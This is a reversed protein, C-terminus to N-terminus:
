KDMSDKVKNIYEIVNPIYKIDNPKLKNQLMIRLRLENEGSEIAKVFEEDKLIYMLIQEVKRQDARSQDSLFEKKVDTITKVFDKSSGSFTHFIDVINGVLDIVDSEKVPQNQLMYEYLPKM